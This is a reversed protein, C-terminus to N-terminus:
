AGELNLTLGDLGGEVKSLEKILWKKFQKPGLKALSWPNFGKIESWQIKTSPFTVQTKM